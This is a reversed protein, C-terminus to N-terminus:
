YLYSFNDESLKLNFQMYVYFGLLIELGIQFNKIVDLSKGMFDFAATDLGGFKKEELNEIKWWFLEKRLGDGYGFGLGLIWDIWLVNDGRVTMGKEIWFEWSVKRM